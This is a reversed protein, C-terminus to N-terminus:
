KKAVAVRKGRESGEGVRVDAGTPECSHRPKENDQPPAGGDDSDTSGCLWNSPQARRPTNLTEGFLSTCGGREVYIMGLTRGGILLVDTM